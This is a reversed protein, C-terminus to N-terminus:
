APLAWARETRLSAATNVVANFFPGTSLAILSDEATWDVMFQNDAYSSHDCYREDRLVHSYAIEGDDAEGPEDRIICMDAVPVLRCVMTAEVEEGPVEDHDLGEGDAGCRKIRSLRALAETMGAFQPAEDEVMMRHLFTQALENMDHHDIVYHYVSM